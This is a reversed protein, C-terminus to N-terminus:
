IKHGSKEAARKMADEMRRKFRVQWKKQIIKDFNRAKTGPHNVYPFAVMDGSSGGGQSGIVNPTTKARYSGSGGWKFYLKGGQRKPYIKHPRTGKDVYGYIEDDTGVLISMNESVDTIKEFKVPHEWTETTKKFDDEMEDAVKLIAAQLEYWMAADNLKEPKIEKFVLAM